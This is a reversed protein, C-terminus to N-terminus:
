AVQPLRARANSKSIEWNINHPYNESTFTGIIGQIRIQSTLVDEMMALLQSDPFGEYNDSPM